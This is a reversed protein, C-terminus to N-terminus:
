LFAFDDAVLLTKTIGTLTITDNATINIVTNAGVQVAAALVEAYSDFSTGLSFRMVDGLGTGASFDSIVDKGFDQHLFL